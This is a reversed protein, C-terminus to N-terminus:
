SAYDTVWEETKIFSTDPIFNLHLTVRELGNPALELFVFEKSWNDGDIEWDKATGSSEKVASEFVTDGLTKRHEALSDYEDINFCLGTHFGGNMPADIWEPKDDNTEPIVTLKNSTNSTIHLINEDPTIGVSIAPFGDRIEIMGHLGTKLLDEHANLSSNHLGFFVQKTSKHIEVLLSYEGMINVPLTIPVDPDTIKIPLKAEVGDESLSWDRITTNAIKEIPQKEEQLNSLKTELAMLCYESSIIELGNDKYDELMEEDLNLAFFAIAKELTALEKKSFQNTNM